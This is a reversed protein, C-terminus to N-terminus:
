ILAVTNSVCVCTCVSVYYIPNIDIKEYKHITVDLIPLWLQHTSRHHHHSTMRTWWVSPVNKEPSHTSKYPAIHSHLIGIPTQWHDSDLVSATRRQRNNPVMCAMWRRLVVLWVWWGDSFVSEGISGVQVLSLITQYRGFDIYLMCM